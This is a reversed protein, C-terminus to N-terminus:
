RADPAKELLGRLVVAFADLLAEAITLAPTVILVEGGLGGLTVIYGAELLSRQVALAVSASRLEVGIMLGAGRVEGVGPVSALAATLTQRARDGVACARDALGDGALVDLTAIAAACALPAGHFTATHVVEENPERRWSHMIADPGICASIPLGGGLGKGLCILDPLAGVSTSALGDGCRGLGTWIEDAILLAEARRSLAGLDRLFEPPPVVCGGRGLIPEVLVAGVNGRDLSKEVRVLVLDLDQRSRPYPVFSVHPNLQDAFADRWSRKLGCAALPGYGLGHYAGEFAIV